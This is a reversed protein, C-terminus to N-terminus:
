RILFVKQQQISDQYQSRIFYAGSAQNTANWVMKRMGAPVIRDHLLAVRQGILNFVEVRLQGTAPITFELSHSSNFPNPYGAMKFSGPLLTDDGETVDTARYLCWNAVRQVLESRRMPVNPQDSLTSLAFGFNLIRWGVDLNAGVVFEQDTTQMIPPPGCCPYCTTTGAPDLNVIARGDTVPDGEIGIMVSYNLPLYWEGALGGLWSPDANPYIQNMYSGTVSGSGRGEIFWDRIAEDDPTFLHEAYRGDAEVMIAFAGFMNEPLQPIPVDAVGVVLGAAELAPKLSDPASPIGDQIILVEATGISINMTFSQSFDDGSITLYYEGIGPLFSGGGQANLIFMETSPQLYEIDDLANGEEDWLMEGSLTEVSWSANTVPLGANAVHIRIAMEEDPQLVRDPHISEWSIQTSISLEPSDIDDLQQYRGPVEYNPYLVANVPANEITMTRSGAPWYYLPNNSEDSDGLYVNMQDYLGGHEPAGYGSEMQRLYIKNTEHDRTYCIYPIEGRWIWEQFWEFTGDDDSNWFFRDALTETSVHGYADQTLYDQVANRWDIEGYRMRLQHLALSGREYPLPSNMTVFYNDNVLADPHNAEWSLYSARQSQITSRYGEWGNLEQAWLAESYTAFGENLWFHDWDVPTIFDAFWQHAIEHMVISEYTRSGTIMNHGLSIMTQHEQGGNGNFVGCEVIKLEDFPYDYGFAEEYLAVAQPVRALDFAAATSDAPYVYARIPFPDAQLEIVAYDAICFGMESTCVPNPESWEQWRVGDEIEDQTQTGNAVATLTPDTGLQWTVTAKSGPDDVLPAWAHAGDPFSFTYGRTGSWWLGMAGFPGDVTGPTLLYGIELLIEEGSSLDRQITLIDDSQTYSLLTGSEVISVQQVDIWSAAANLEINERVGDSQNHIRIQISVPYAEGAPEAFNIRIEYSSATLPLNAVTDLETMMRQELVDGHLMGDSNVWFPLGAFLLTPTCFLIAMALLSSRSGSTHRVRSM